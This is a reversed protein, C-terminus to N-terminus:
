SDIGICAGATAYNMEPGDEWRGHRDHKMILTTKLATTEDADVYGGLVWWDGNSLVVSM